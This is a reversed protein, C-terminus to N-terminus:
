NSAYLTDWVPHGFISWGFDLLEANAGAHVTDHNLPVNHVQEVVVENLARATRLREEEDLAASGEDIAAQIEPLSESSLNTRAGEGLLAAIGSTFDLRMPGGGVLADCRKEVLCEDIVTAGETSRLEMTIGVDALMQQLVEAQETTTPRATFTLTFTFGDPHGAEALLERARDPDHPYRENLSPDFVDTGPLAYQNTVMAGEGIFDVFAERDIAYSIAQRVRIDDLPPMSPNLLLHNVRASPFGHIKLDPDGEVQSVQLPTLAALDVEGTRLANFAAESDGINAIELRQIGAPEGWYGDWREFVLRVGVDYSVFEFPGTGVPAIGLDPDDFAAPSIMTGPKDSLIDVIHGFPSSLNIQVTSSDLVEVSEIPEIMSAVTSEELELGREINAKVAEADFATGDHFQVGERLTLTFTQGDDGFEWDTALLPHVSGDLDARILTEYAPGYWASAFTATALHPDLSNLPNHHAFVVGADRDTEDPDVVTTTTVADDGVAADDGVDGDDDNGCAGLLLVAALLALGFRRLSMQSIMRGLQRSMRGARANCWVDPQFRPM